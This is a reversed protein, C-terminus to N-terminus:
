NSIEVEWGDHIEQTVREEHFTGDGILGAAVGTWTPTQWWIDELVLRFDPAVTPRPRTPARHLESGPGDPAFTLLDDGNEDVWAIVVYSDWETDYLDLTWADSAPDVTAILEPELLYHSLGPAENAFTGRTVSADEMKISLSIEASSLDGNDLEVLHVGPTRFLGVRLQAPDLGEAVTATGTLVGEFGTVEPPGPLPEDPMDPELLDCGMSSM